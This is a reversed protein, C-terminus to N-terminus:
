VIMTDVFEPCSFTHERLKQAEVKVYHEFNDGMGLQGRQFHDADLAASLIASNKLPQCKKCVTFYM